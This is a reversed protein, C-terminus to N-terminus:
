DRDLWAGEERCFALDDGCQSSPVGIADEHESTLDNVVVDFKM